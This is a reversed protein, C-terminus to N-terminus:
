SAAAERCPTSSLPDKCAHGRENIRVNQNVAEIAAERLLLLDRRFNEPAADDFVRDAYRMLRDNLKHRGYRAGNTAMNNQLLGVGETLRFFEELLKSNEVRIFGNQSM